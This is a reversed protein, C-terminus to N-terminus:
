NGVFALGFGIYDTTGLKTRIEPIILGSNIKFPKSLRVFTIKSSDQYAVDFSVNSKRFKYSLGPFFKKRSTDYQLYEYLPGKDHRLGFTPKGGEQFPMLVSAGINKRHYDLWVIQSSDSNGNGSSMDNRFTFTVASSFRKSVQVGFNKSKGDKAIWNDIYLNADKKEGMPFSFDFWRAGGADTCIKYFEFNFQGYGASMDAPNNIAHAKVGFLLISLLMLFIVVVMLQVGFLQNDLDKENKDKM